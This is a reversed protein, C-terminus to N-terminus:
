CFSYVTIESVNLLEPKVIIPAHRLNELSFM